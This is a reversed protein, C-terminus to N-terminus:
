LVEKLMEPLAPKSSLLNRKTQKLFYKEKMKSFYNSLICLELSITQKQTKREATFM